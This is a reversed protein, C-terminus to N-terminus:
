EVGDEVGDELDVDAYFPAIFALKAMMGAMTRAPTRAIRGELRLQEADLNDCLKDAALEGSRQRAQHKALEWKDSAPENAV